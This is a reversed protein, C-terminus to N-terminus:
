TANNKQNKRYVLISIIYSLYLLLLLSNNIAKFWNDYQDWKNAKILDYLLFYSFDELNFLLLGSLLWFFHDKLLSQDDASKFKEFLYICCSVIVSGQGFLLVKDHFNKLPVTIFFFLSVALLGASCLISFSRSLRGGHLRFLSFYFLYEIPISLNYLKANAYPVRKFYTGLLEVSLIFFFFFPLWRLGGKKISKWFVISICLALFEAIHNQTIKMIM